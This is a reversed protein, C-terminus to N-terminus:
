NVDHKLIVKYKTINQAYICVNRLGDHEQCIGTSQFAFRLLWMRDFNLYFRYRVNRIDTKTYLYLVVGFLNLNTSVM